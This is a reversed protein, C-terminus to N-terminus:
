AIRLDREHGPEALKGEEYGQRQRNQKDQGAALAAGRLRRRGPARGFDQGQFGEQGIHGLLYPAIAHLHVREHREAEVRVGEFGGRLVHCADGAAREDDGVAGADFGPQFLDEGIGAPLVLHDLGGGGQGAAGDAEM